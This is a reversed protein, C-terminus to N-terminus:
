LLGQIALSLLFYLPFLVGLFSHLPNERTERNGQNVLGELIARVELVVLHCRKGCPDM